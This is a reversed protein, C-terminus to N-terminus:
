KLIEQTIKESEGIMDSPKLKLLKKKIEAKIKAEKVLKLWSKQDIVKGRLADRVTQYAHSKGSLKLATTLVESLIEWHQDLEALMVNKNVNLRGIGTTLSQYSLLSYAFPLVFNRRITSDSFDRQLRNYSFKRCFFELISNAMELGGESGEFYQPNIKHPMGASGAEGKINAIIFYGYSSYLWIDKCFGILYNNLLKWADFFEILDSYSAIQTASVTKKFGLYNLFKKELALWNQDPILAKLSNFNGVEGSFKPSFEAANLKDVQKIIQDIFLGLEKGMTTVSAPQGHTRALMPTSKTLNSLKKLTKLLQLMEPLLVQQYANGVQMRLAVNNIDESGIGLNVYPSLKELGQSDLRKKFFIELARLDHNTTKEIEWIEEGEKTNLKYFTDDKFADKIIFKDNGRFRSDQNKISIIKEKILFGLYEGMIRLRYQMWSLESFYKSLENVKKGNRGDLHTLAQLPHIKDM